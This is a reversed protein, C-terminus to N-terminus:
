KKGKKKMMSEGMDCAKDRKKDEKELHKLSKEVGKTKKEIKRIQKDM